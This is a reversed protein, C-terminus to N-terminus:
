QAPELDQSGTPNFYSDIQCFHEGHAVMRFTLRAFHGSATHIYYNRQVDQAWPSGQVVTMDIEDDSVYNGDPALFPFEDVNTQLGGGPVSARCKWDFKWGEKKETDHTWCEVAFANEGSATLNGSALDIQIPSGDKPVPFNKHFHILAEGAGKERLRFVVPNGQDPVFNQNAGAYTFFAGNPEYSYYGAKRVTVRLLKGKIGTISFMGNPDSQTHYFSTGETSLDNCEFDVNAGVVASNSEDLVNGYFQIPTQWQSLGQKQAADMQKLRDEMWATTNTGSVPALPTNGSVPPSTPVPQGITPPNTAVNTQVSQDQAIPQSAPKRFLWFLVLASVILCTFIIIRSKM